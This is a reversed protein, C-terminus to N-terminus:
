VWGLDRAAALAEAALAGDALLHVDLSAAPELPRWTLGPAHASIGTVLVARGEAVPTMALDFAVARELLRPPTEGFLALLADYHGPNEARPHILILQDRLEDLSIAERTALPHDAHLVVGQPERRLVHRPQATAPPACRVIGADLTGDALGALIAPAPLVQTELRLEPLRRALASLLRPATEYGASAGYALRLTGAAGRASGSCRGGCRMPM